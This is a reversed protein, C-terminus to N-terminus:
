IKNKKDKGIEMNKKSDKSQAGRCTPQFFGVSSNVIFLLIREKRCKGGM